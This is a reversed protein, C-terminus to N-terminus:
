RQIESLDIKGVVRPGEEQPVVTYADWNGAVVNDILTREQIFASSINVAENVDTAARLTTVHAEIITSLSAHRMKDAMMKLLKKALEAPLIAVPQGAILGNLDQNVTFDLTVNHNTNM